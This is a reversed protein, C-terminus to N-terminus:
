LDRGHPEALQRHWQATRRIAEDLPLPAPLGLEARAKRTDPVYHQSQHGAPPPQLISIPIETGLTRVVRKALEAITLSEEAGVNYASGPQGNLLVAWLWAAMDAAYLYSRVPTGDGVIVIPQADLGAKIFNGIAFHKDLPLHPGVFAFCRAIKVAVSGDAGSACALWEAARKGAGYAASLSTSDPAGSFCEPIHTLEPPTRGYVAGSSVMLLDKAGCTRALALVRRTGEVCTDFTAQPSSLAAVDTAAHIITDFEDSPFDFDRVDGQVLRMQRALEPAAAQFAAPDRTLVTVDCNLALRRDAELVTAILWKGVFGTGGTMFIRRGALQRWVAESLMEYCRALDAAPISASAPKM